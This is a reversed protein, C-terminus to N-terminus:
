RKLLAVNGSGFDGVCRHIFRRGYRGKGNFGHIAKASDQEATWEGHYEMSEPLVITTIGLGNSTDLFCSMTFTPTSSAQSTSEGVLSADKHLM